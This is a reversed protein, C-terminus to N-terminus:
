VSSPPYGRKKKKSSISSIKEGERKGRQYALSRGRGKFFIPPQHRKGPPPIDLDGKGRRPVLLPM